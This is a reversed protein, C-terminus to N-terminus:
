PAAARAGRWWVRRRTTRARRGGFHQSPHNARILSVAAHPERAAGRRRGRPAVRSEPPPSPSSEGGAGSMKSLWTYDVTRQSLLLNTNLCKLTRTRHIAEPYVFPTCARQLGSGGWFSM